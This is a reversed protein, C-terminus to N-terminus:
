MWKEISICNLGKIAKAIAVEIAWAAAGGYWKNLLYSFTVAGTEEDSSNAEDEASPSWPYEALIRGVSWDTASDGDDVSSSSHNVEVMM